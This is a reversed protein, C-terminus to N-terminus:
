INPGPRRICFFQSYGGGGPGFPGVAWVVWWFLGFRSVGFNQRFLRASVVWSRFSGSEILDDMRHDLTIAEDM